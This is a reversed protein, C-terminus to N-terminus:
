IPINFLTRPISRSVGKVYSECYPCDSVQGRQGAGVVLVTKPGDSSEESETINIPM